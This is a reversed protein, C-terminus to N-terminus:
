FLVGGQTLLESSLVLGVWRRADRQHRRVLVVFPVLDVSRQARIELLNGFGDFEEVGRHRRVAILCVLNDRLERHSRAVILLHFDLHDAPHRVPPDGFLDQGEIAVSRAQLQVNPWPKATPVSPM